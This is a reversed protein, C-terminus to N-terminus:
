GEFLEDNSGDILVYGRRELEAKIEDLYQPEISEGSEGSLINDWLEAYKKYIAAPLGASVLDDTLAPPFSSFGEGPVNNYSFTDSGKPRPEGNDGLMMRLIRGYEDRPAARRFEAWTRSGYAASRIRAIYRIREPTAFAVVDPREVVKYELTPRANKKTTPATRGTQKKM